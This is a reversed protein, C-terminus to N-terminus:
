KRVPIPFCIKLFALWWFVFNLMIWFIFMVIFAVLTIIQISFSCIMSLDWSVGPALGEGDLMGQHIRDALSRLDPPMEMGVGRKFKRLDKIAPLEVRIHRAPADPDLPKALTFPDSRESVVPPCEPQEYVLRIAYTDGDPPDLKIMDAVDPPVSFPTATEVLAASVLDYLYHGPGPKLDTADLESLLRRSPPTTPITRDADYLNYRATPEVGEGNVLGLDDKLDDIGVALTIPAGDRTILIDRIADALVERDSGAPLSPGGTLASFVAPLHNNLFDALDLILYLSAREREAVTLNQYAPPLNAALGTGLDVYFARWVRLVRQELEGLRPDPDRTTGSTPPQQLVQALLQGPNAVRELYRERSDVPVYGHYVLRGGCTTPCTVVHHLPLHHEDDRIEVANGRQDVLLQWGAQPGEKVWGQEQLAGNVTRLRRLVFSTREGNQRAVNRDPLGVQRCVLSGSVLYFRGHLAQYLKRQGNTLEPSMDGLDAPTADSTRGEMLDLFAQLFDDGELQALWPKRLDGIRRPWIPAPQVWDVRPM